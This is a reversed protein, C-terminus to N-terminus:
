VSHLGERKEVLEAAEQLVKSLIKEYTLEEEIRKQGAKIINKREEEHELYYEVKKLLDEKGYYYVIEKDEKFYQRANATDFEQPINHALYLTGSSISEIAKAPLSVHPHFGISIKAAGLAKSLKEGNEIPGMAYAQFKEMKDWSRGYIKLNTYGNDILWEAILLKYRLYYITNYLYQALNFLFSKNFYIHLSNAIYCIINYTQEYGYFFEEQEMLDIYVKIIDQIDRRLEKPINTLFNEIEEKYDTMHGLLCIDCSYYKKEQESLKWNKYIMKNVSIPMKLADKYEMDWQKGSLDSIFMSVIIDRSLLSSVIEKNATSQLLRDQIWTLYIIEKPFWKWKLRFYDIQFFVDPKFEALTQLVTMEIIRHIGDKEILCKTEYGLCKAAIICDRTHYQLATSFRTTVFVIRGKKEKVRRIINSANIKYYEEIEKRYKEKKKKFSLEIQELLEGYERADINSLIKDPFLATDELLYDYVSNRGILFVIRKFSLFPEIDYLQVFLEWYIRDFVLYLPIDEDMFIQEIRFNRECELIEEKWLENILMVVTNAQPVSNLKGRKLIINIQREKINIYILLKDDQWIPVFELKEKENENKYHPYEKLLQINNQYRQFLTDKNPSYYAELILDYIDNNGSLQYVAIFDLLAKKDYGNRFELKAKELLIIEKDEEFTILIKEFLQIAEKAYGEQEMKLAKNMYMLLLENM